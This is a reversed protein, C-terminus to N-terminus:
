YHADPMVQKNKNNVSNTPLFYQSGIKLKRPDKISNTKLVANVNNPNWPIGHKKLIGWVTDGPKIQQDIELPLRDGKNPQIAPQQLRQPVRQMPTVPKQTQQVRPSTQQAPGAACKSLFRTLVIGPLMAVNNKM